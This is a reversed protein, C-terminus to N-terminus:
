EQTSLYPLDSDRPSLGVTKLPWAIGLSPDNWRVGTEADPVWAGSHLYLLRSRQELVQFGHGCGEPIFLANCLDPSLRVSHWQRYTPSGKRLDVVVDWVVGELCRVLKAEGHPSAQLHIGRVTGVKHTHSINVQAISRGGWIETYIPDERRYGCLFTGREDKFVASRVEFVGPISTRHLETSM